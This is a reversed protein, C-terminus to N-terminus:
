CSNLAFNVQLHQKGPFPPGVLQNSSELAASTFMNHELEMNLQDSMKQAVSSAPNLQNGLMHTVHVGNQFIKFSKTDTSPRNRKRNGAESGPSSPPSDKISPPQPTTTLSPPTSVVVAASAAGPQAEYGFKLGGFSNAPTSNGSSYPNDPTRSTSPPPTENFQSRSKKHSVKPKVLSAVSDVTTTTTSTTLTKAISAVTNTATIITTATTTTSVTVTCNPDKTPQSQNTPITETLPITNTIAAASASSYAPTATSTTSAQTSTLELRKKNNRTKPSVEITSQSREMAFARSEM